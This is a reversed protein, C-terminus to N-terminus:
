RKRLPRRGRPATTRVPAAAAASAPRRFEALQRRMLSEVEVVPVAMDRGLLLDGQNGRFMFRAIPSLAHREMFGAPDYLQVRLVRPRGAPSAPDGISEVEEWSVPGPWDSSEFGRKGVVLRIPNRARLASQVAGRIGWLALFVGGGVYVWGLMTSGGALDGSGMYVGAIGIVVLGLGFFVNWRTRSRDDYIAVARGLEPHDMATPQAGESSAV